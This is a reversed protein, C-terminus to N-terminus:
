SKVQCEKLGTELSTKLPQNLHCYPQLDYFEDSSYGILPALFKEGLWVDISSTDSNTVGNLTVKLKWSPDFTLMSQLKSITGIFVSPDAEVAVPCRAPPLIIESSGTRMNKVFKKLKNGRAEDIESFSIATYGSYPHHEKHVIDFKGTM